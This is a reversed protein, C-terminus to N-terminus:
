RAGPLSASFRPLSTLGSRHAFIYAPDLGWHGGNPVTYYARVRLLVTREAGPAPPPLPFTLAVETGPDVVVRRRDDAAALEPAAAGRSTTAEAAAVESAPAAEVAALLVRDVEWFRPTAALSVRVRGAGGVDVPVAVTRMAASGLPALSSAKAGGGEGTVTVTLPVRLRGIEDDWVERRCRETCDEKTVRSMLLTMGQGMRAVYRAFAEEAFPTTRATVLVALREGPPREFDLDLTEVPEGDAGRISTPPAARGDIAGVHAAVDGGDSARARGATSTRTVAVLAGGEGPVIERGPEHDVVLAAARDLHVTADADAVVRVTLSSSAPAAVRVVDTRESWPFLSGAVVSVGASAEGSGVRVVPSAGRAIPRVPWSLVVVWAVVTALATTGLARALRSTAPAGASRRALAIALAGALGVVPFLAGLM